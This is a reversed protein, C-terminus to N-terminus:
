GRRRCSNRSSTAGHVTMSVVCTGSLVVKPQLAHQKKATMGGRFAAKFKSEIDADIAGEEVQIGLKRLLVNQAQRTANAACPKGALRGSRRLSHISVLTRARRLRPRGRIVPTHLLLCVDAELEDQVSPTGDDDDSSPMTSPRQLDDDLEDLSAGQGVHDALLVLSPDLEMIKSLELRASVSEQGVPLMVLPTLPVM